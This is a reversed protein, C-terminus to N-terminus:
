LLQQVTPTAIRVLLWVPQQFDVFKRTREWSPLLTEFCFVGTTLYRFFFPYVVFFGSPVTKNGRQNSM